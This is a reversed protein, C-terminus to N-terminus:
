DLDASCEAIHPNREPFPQTKLEKYVKEPLRAQMVSDNFVYEGFMETVKKFKEM